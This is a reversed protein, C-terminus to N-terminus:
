KATKLVVSFAQDFQKSPMGKKDQERILWAQVTMRVGADEKNFGITMFHEKTRKKWYWSLKSGKETGLAFDKEYTIDKPIFGTILQVSKDPFRQPKYQVTSTAISNVGTLNSTPSSVVEVLKAGSDGLEVQSIRGYHVDGSLVAIDNGSYALSKILQSYQRKFSLLNRELKNEAVILIQPIVLVGPTNLKEAWEKIKEFGEKNIFQSKSRTSRLDAICFSLDSGITFCEVDKTQQIRRVGDASAQKWTRRIRKFKLMLLTPVLSDYFPYDNWYEHDDPLMWTGGRSLMSGLERWHDFYDKAIRRRIEKPIPSLSDLGIDLYVQDGVMFKVDPQFAKKGNSYLAKYASATNGNDQHCYYCSNLSVTFAQDKSTPLQNPLTSFYGTKLQLWENDNERFEQELQQYLIVKYESHSDLDDFESLTFFRNGTGRIPLGWDQRTIDIRAIEVSDKYCILRCLTPKRLYPSLTGSWVQATQTTVKHIVLSWDSTKPLIRPPTKEDSNNVIIM